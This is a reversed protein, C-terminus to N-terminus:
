TVIDFYSDVSYGFIEFDTRYLTYLAVLLPRPLQSFYKPTASNYDTHSDHLQTSTLVDKLEPVKELLFAEEESLTEFHLIYDFPFQCPTCFRHYPAWHENHENGKEEESLVFEVFKRFSPSCTEEQQGISERQLEAPKQKDKLEPLIYSAKQVQCRLSRYFSQKNSEIKDRYASLFRQFPDRVILFSIYHLDRSYYQLDSPSPRPYLKRAAEVPSSSDSHQLHVGAMKLYHNLWTSSAAKFVNCYMLQYKKSVLFERSNPPKNRQTPSVMEVCRAQLMERREKMVKEMKLTHVPTRVVEDVEHGGKVLVAKREKDYSEEKQIGKLSSAKKKEEEVVKKEEKVRLNQQLHERKEQRKAEQGENERREHAHNVENITDGHVDPKQLNLKSNNSVFLLVSLFSSIALLLVVLSRARRVM